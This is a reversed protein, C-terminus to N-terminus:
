CFGQSLPLLSQSLTQSQATNSLSPINRVMNYEKSHQGAEVAQRINVSKEYWCYCTSTKLIEDLKGGLPVVVIKFCFLYCKFPYESNVTYM